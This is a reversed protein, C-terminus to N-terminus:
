EEPLPIIERMYQLFARMDTRDELTDLVSKRGLEKCIADQLRTSQKNTKCPEENPKTFYHNQTANVSSISPQNSM